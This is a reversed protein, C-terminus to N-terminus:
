ARGEPFSHDGWSCDAFPDPIALGIVRLNGGHFSGITKTVMYRDGEIVIVDGVNPWPVILRPKAFREIARVPMINSATVIAPAAILGTLFGRRNM